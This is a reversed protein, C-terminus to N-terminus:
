GVTQVIDYRPPPGAVSSVLAYGAVPWSWPDIREPARAGLAHRALTVHPRLARREVPLDLSRLALGLGAHLELLAEPVALPELVALGRPWLSAGGWDLVFPRPLPPLAAILAPLRAADLAGIFHLTVHLREPAVVAARKPWRWRAQADALAARAAADPWLALFLRLPVPTM